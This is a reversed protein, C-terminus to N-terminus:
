DQLTYARLVGMDAQRAFAPKDPMVGRADSKGWKACTKTPSSKGTNGTFFKLLLSVRTNHFYGTKQAFFPQHQLFRGTARNRM